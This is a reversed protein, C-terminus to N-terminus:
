IFLIASLIARTSSQLDGARALLERLLEGDDAAAHRRARGHLDEAADEQAGRRCPELEGRGVHLERQARREVRLDVPRRPPRARAPQEDVERAQQGGPSTSSSYRSSSLMRWTRQPGASYRSCCTRRRPSGAAARCRRPPSTVRDVRVRQERRDRRTPRATDRSSARGTSVPIRTCNPSPLSTSPRSRSTGARTCPSASRPGTGSSSAITGARASSSTRAARSRPRCARARRAPSGPARRRDVARPQRGAPDLALERLEVLEPRLLERVLDRQRPLLQELDHPPRRHHRVAVRRQPQAEGLALHGDPRLRLVDALRALRQRDRKSPSGSSIPNM